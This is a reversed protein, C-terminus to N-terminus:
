ADSVIRSSGPATPMVGSVGSVGPSASRSSVTADGPACISACQRATSRSALRMASASGSASSTSRSEAAASSCSTARASDDQKQRIFTYQLILDDRERLPKRGTFSLAEGLLCLFRM